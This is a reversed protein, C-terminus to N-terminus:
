VAKRFSVPFTADTYTNTRITFTQTPVIVLKDGIKGTCRQHCTLCLLLAARVEFQLEGRRGHVHHCEGREPALTLVKVVKRGCCRCKSKDRVWVQRRFEKEDIVVLKKAEVKAELRTPGKPCSQRPRDTAFGLDDLGM